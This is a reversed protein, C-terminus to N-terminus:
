EVASLKTRYDEVLLSAEKTVNNTQEVADYKLSVINNTQAREQKFHNSEAKALKAAHKRDLTAVAKRTKECLMSMEEYKKKRFVAFRETRKDLTCLTKAFFAELKELVTQNKNMEIQTSVEVNTVIIKSLRIVEKSDELEEKLGAVINNLVIVKETSAAMKM